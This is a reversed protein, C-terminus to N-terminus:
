SFRLTLSELRALRSLKKKSINSFRKTGLIGRPLIVFGMNTSTTRSRYTTRSRSFRSLDNPFATQCAAIAGINPTSLISRRPRRRRVDAPTVAQGLLADASHLEAVAQAKAPELNMEELRRVKRRAVRRPRDQEDSSGSQEDM